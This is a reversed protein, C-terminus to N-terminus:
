FVSYHPYEPGPTADAKPPKRRGYMSFNPCSRIAINGGLEKLPPYTGPAPNDNRVKFTLSKEEQMNLLITGPSEHVQKFDPEYTGPGPITHTYKKGPFRGALTFQKSLLPQSVKYAGPDPGKKPKQTPIRAASGMSWKPSLQNPDVPTYVGPGPLGAYKKEGPRTSTGFSFTPTKKFREDINPVGYKGPGPAAEDRSKDSPRSYL